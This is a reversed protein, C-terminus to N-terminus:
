NVDMWGACPMCLQLGCCLLLCGLVSIFCQGLFGSQPFPLAAPQDPAFGWRPASSGARTWTNHSCGVDAYGSALIACDYATGFSWRSNASNIIELGPPSTGYLGINGPLMVVAPLRCAPMFSNASKCCGSVLKLASLHSGLPFRGYARCSARWHYVPDNAHDPKPMYKYNSKPGLDHGGSHLQM